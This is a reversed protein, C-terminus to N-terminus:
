HSNWAPSGCNWFLAYDLLLLHMAKYESAVEMNSRQALYFHSAVFMMDEVTCFGAHHRTYVEGLVCLYNIYVASRCFRLEVHEM